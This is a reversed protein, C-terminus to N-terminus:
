YVTIQDANMNRDTFQVHQLEFNDFRNYYYTNTKTSFCGTYVTYENKGQQNIVSGDIMAVSKLMNFFKAVNAKESDVIPYHANLYAVKVFRSAPISDGPLGLSGTGVGWHVFIKVM